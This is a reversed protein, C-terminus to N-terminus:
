RRGTARGAGAVNGRGKVLEALKAEVEAKAEDIGDALWPEVTLGDAKRGAALTLAKEWENVLDALDRCQVLENAYNTAM